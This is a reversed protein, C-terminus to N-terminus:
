EVERVSIDYLTGFLEKAVIDQGLEGPFDRMSVEVEFVSKALLDNGNTM